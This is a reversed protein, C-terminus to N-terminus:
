SFQYGGFNHISDMIAWGGWFDSSVTGLVRMIWPLIQPGM